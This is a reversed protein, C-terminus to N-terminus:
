PVRSVEKRVRGKKLVRYAEVWSEPLWRKLMQKIWSSESRLRPVEYFAILAEKFAENLSPLQSIIYLGVDLYGLENLIIAQELSRPKSFNLPDYAFIAEAWVLRYSNRPLHASFHYRRCPETWHLDILQFGHGDLFSCVDGLLPQGIYIPILEVETKIVSIKQLFEGASRLIYLENGQTDLKIYDVHAIHEQIMFDRLSVGKVIEQGTVEKMQSWNDCEFHNLLEVNPHLTSTAAPRKTINLVAEGSREMLAFPLYSVRNYQPLQLTFPNQVIKNYETPNPEFGYASIYKALRVLERTGGRCGGDIVILDSLLIQGLIASLEWSDKYFSM